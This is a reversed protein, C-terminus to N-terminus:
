WVLWHTTKNLWDEIGQALIETAPKISAEFLFHETSGWASDNIYHVFKLNEIRVICSIM